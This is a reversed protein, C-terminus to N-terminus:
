LSKLRTILRQVISREIPKQQQALKRLRFMESTLTTRHVIEGNIQYWYGGM